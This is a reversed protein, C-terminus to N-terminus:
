WLRDDVPAPVYDVRLIPLKDSNVPSMGCVSVGVLARCHEGFDGSNAATATPGM